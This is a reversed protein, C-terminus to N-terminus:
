RPKAEVALITARAMKMERRFLRATPIGAAERAAVGDLLEQAMNMDLRGPPINKRREYRAATIRALTELSTVFRVSTPAGEPSLVPTTVGLKQVLHPLDSQMAEWKRRPGPRPAEWFGVDGVFLTGDARRYLVLDDHIRWGHRREIALLQRELDAYEPGTISTAPEGWERVFAPTGGEFETYVGRPIVSYGKAALENAVGAEQRMWDTQKDRTWAARALDHAAPLKVAVPGRADDVRYVMGFNGTGVLQAHGYRYVPDEDTGGDRWSFGTRLTTRAARKAAERTEPLSLHGRTLRPKAVSDSGRRARVPNPRMAALKRELREGAARPITQDYEMRLYGRELGLEDRHLSPDRHKKAVERALRSGTKNAFGADVLVPGRDRTLVYSDAKLEPATFGYPLMAREIARHLDWLDGELKHRGQIDRRKARVCERVIVGLDPRWAHFRAVHMRVGPVTNAVRLWEAEQALMGFVSRSLDRAVKYAVGRADCFVWATMGLGQLDLPAEAGAEIARAVASDIEGRSSPVTHEYHGVLDQSARTLLDDTSPNRRSM